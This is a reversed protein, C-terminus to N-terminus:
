EIYPHPDTHKIGHHLILIDLNINATVSINLKNKSVGDVQYTVDGTSIAKLIYVTNAISSAYYISPVTNAISRNSLILWTYTGSPIVLNKNSANYYHIFTSYEYL